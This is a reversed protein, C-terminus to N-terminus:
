KVDEKSKVLSIIIGKSFKISHRNTMFAFQYIKKEEGEKIM